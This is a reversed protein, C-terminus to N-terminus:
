YYHCSYSNNIPENSKWEFIYDPTVIEAFKKIIKYVDCPYGYGCIFWKDDKKEFKLIYYDTIKGENLGFFWGSKSLFVKNNKLHLGISSIYSYFLIEDKTNFLTNM